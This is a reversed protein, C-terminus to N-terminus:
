VGLRAVEMHQLHPGIIFFFFFFFFFPYHIGHSRSLERRTRPSLLAPVSAGPAGGCGGWKYVTQVGPKKKGRINGHTKAYGSPGPPEYQILPSSLAARTQHPPLSGLSLPLSSGRGGHCLCKGSVSGGPDLPPPPSPQSLAPSLASAQALAMETPSKHGQKHTQTKNQKTKSQKTVGYCPFTGPGPISGLGCCHGM